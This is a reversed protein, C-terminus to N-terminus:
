VYPHPQFPRLPGTSRLSIKAVIILAFFLITTLFFLLPLNKSIFIYLFSILPPPCLVFFNLYPSLSFSLTQLLFLSSFFIFTLPKTQAPQNPTLAAFYSFIVLLGGVYILFLLFAFWSATTVRLILSLELAILLILAGTLVPSATLLLCLTTTLTLNLLFLLLM